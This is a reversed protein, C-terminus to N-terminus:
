TASSVEKLTNPYLCQMIAELRDEVRIDGVLRLVPSQCVSLWREHASLTRSALGTETDYDAAWAIFERFLQNRQPDTYIMTGYRELEREKLRALRIKPDLYLFVVLDFRPFLNEGWNIISGGLIWSSTRELDEVLRKNRAVPDRRETFPHQSKCWFYDDSDFYPIGLERALAQGVTTVGSASAGVIHLKM